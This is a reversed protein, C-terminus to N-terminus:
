SSLVERVAAVTDRPHRGRRLEFANLRTIKKAFLPWERQGRAYPQLAALRAPIGRAPLPTLLPGEGASEASLFVVATLQPASPALRYDGRRLDVEFKRVGSRRQIIPSKRIAQATSASEILRLADARVHLFNAIGTARLTAPQVFVSDESVFDLGELLCHLAATSKGSGSAGMLLVGRGRKSVCGGHLPVLKQARAALTFVAFEILEYRTHYPFRLQQPSVAVVATGQEPSLAVFNSAGSAAGLFGAGSFMAVPPPESRKHAKYAPTTVLRVRLRPPLASLRHRPLGAYASEVLRVLEHSDSEFEFRAGLLQLRKRPLYAREGFPDAFLDSPISTRHRTMGPRESAPGDVYSMGALRYLGVEGVL